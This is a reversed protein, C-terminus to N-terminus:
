EHRVSKLVQAAARLEEREEDSLATGGDAVAKEIAAALGSLNAPWSARMSAAFQARAIEFAAEHQGRATLRDLLAQVKQLALTVAESDGSM